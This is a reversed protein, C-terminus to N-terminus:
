LTNEYTFPHGVPDLGTGARAAHVNSGFVESQLRGLLSIKAAEAQGTGALPQLVLALCFTGVAAHGRRVIRRRVAARELM